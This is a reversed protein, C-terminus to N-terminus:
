AIAEMGDLPPSPDVWVTTKSAIRWAKRSGHAKARSSSTRRPSSAVPVSSGGPLTVSGRSTRLGLSAGLRTSSEDSEIVSTTPYNLSSRSQKLRGDM